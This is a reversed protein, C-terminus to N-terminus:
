GGNFVLVVHGDGRCADRTGCGSGCVRWRGVPFCSCHRDGHSTAHALRGNSPQWFQGYCGWYRTFSRKRVWLEGSPTLGRELQTAVRVCVDTWWM